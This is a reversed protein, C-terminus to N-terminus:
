RLSVYHCDVRLAQHIRILMLPPLFPDISLHFALCLELCDQRIVHGLDLSVFAFQSEGAISQTRQQVRIVYYGLSSVVAAVRGREGVLLLVKHDNIGGVSDAGIGIRHSVQPYKPSPGYIQLLCYIERRIIMM